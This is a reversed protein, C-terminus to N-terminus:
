LPNNSTQRVLLSLTLRIVFFLIIIGIVGVVQLTPSLQQLLAACHLDIASDNSRTASTDPNTHRGINHVTTHAVKHSVNCIIIEPGTQGSLSPSASAASQSGAATTIINQRAARIQLAALPIFPGNYHIIYSITNRCGDRDVAWKRIGNM